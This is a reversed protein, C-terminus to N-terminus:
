RPTSAVRSTATARSCRASPWTTTWSRRRSRRRRAARLERHLDHLRLGRPQLRAARAARDARRARPLGDGGQLGPRSQDQGLSPPGARAGGGEEGAPGRGADRGPELHQHLEHDRRDGRRRPRARVRHRRRAHRAGAGLAARGRGHPAPPRARERRRGREAHALREGSLEGGVVGGRLGLAARAARGRRDARGARRPLRVRRRPAGGPGASPAPGGALARGHLPRPRAHRQLHDGGLRRRPVAGARPLLGGGAGCAGAPPRLVRPLPADGRRRPLDRLHRGDGPAMNGITARDALPLGALGPGFFEVFKGVVGRERLMQTVTLVLDTATSGEPLEGELRFGVVQPILMSVPQGLM